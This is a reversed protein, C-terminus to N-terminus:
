QMKEKLRQMLGEFKEKRMIGAFETRYNAVLGINEIVVDYVKWRGDKFMSKYNIPFNSGNNEVMTKVVSKNSASETAGSADASVAEEGMLKVMGDKVTEVRNMYTKSLLDSFLSVFGAQQEPSLGSWNAGLSRKSMEEFDFRPNILERLKARREKAKAEGPFEANIKVIEDIAFKIESSATVAETTAAVALKSDVFNTAIVSEVLFGVAGLLIIKRFIQNIRNKM